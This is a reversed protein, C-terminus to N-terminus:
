RVNSQWEKACQSRCQAGALEQLTSRVYQYRGITAAAHSDTSCVLTVGAARLARITRHSPCRWRESIEVVTGTEAAIAALRGLLAEPVQEESLGVKPLISFLHALVLPHRRNGRMAAITAEVLVEICREATAEGTDIWTKVTRPSHPGDRWPFQHDAAYIRDVGGLGEAPLDLRGFTDLIKAEIGVSLAITTAPQLRRVAAAYDPVYMTDIRVLDVCGLHHLGAREAEAINEELTSIGDSFTSHVHHDELLADADGLGTADTVLIEPTM